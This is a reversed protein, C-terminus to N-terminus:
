ECCDECQKIIRTIQQLIWACFVFHNEFFLMIKMMSDTAAIMRQGLERVIAMCILIWKEAQNGIVSLM